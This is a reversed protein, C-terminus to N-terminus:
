EEFHAPSTAFASSKMIVSPIINEDLL